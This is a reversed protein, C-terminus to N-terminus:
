HRAMEDLGFEARLVQSFAGDPRRRPVGDVTVDVVEDYFAVLGALQAADPLPSPYSWAIDDGDGFSWYVAAGKYPCATTRDSAHMAVRVDDRPLYFRVPLGTEFVLTPRSSDALVRAGREIRVHRSSRRIDIRHFPDRPHSFAPEDEELWTDFADFDLVVYGTLDPDAPAFAAAERRMGAVVLTLAVGDASHAAFPIKPHLLGDPAAAAPTTVPTLDAAVDDVPVAYSPVIRRPEWVLLARTTDVVVHGGIKGRLWKDIPEHCLGTLRQLLVDRVRVSM